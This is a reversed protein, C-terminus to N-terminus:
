NTFRPQGPGRHALLLGDDPAGPGQRLTMLAPTTTCPHGEVTEPTSWGGGDYRTHMLEESDAAPYVAHLHDDYAALALAVTDRAETGELVAPATTTRGGTRAFVDKLGTHKHTLKNRRLGAEAALSVVTLKRSQTSRGGGAATM